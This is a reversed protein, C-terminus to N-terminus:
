SRAPRSRAPRRRDGSRSRHPGPRRKGTDPIRAPCGPQLLDHGVGAPRNRRGTGRARLGDVDAELATGPPLPVLREPPPRLTQLAGPARLEGGPHLWTGALRHEGPPGAEIREQAVAELPVKHGSTHSVKQEGTQEGVDAHVRRGARREPLSELRRDQAVAGGSEVEGVLLDQAKHAPQVPGTDCGIVQGLRPRATRPLPLRPREPVATRHRRRLNRASRGPASRRHPSRAIRM